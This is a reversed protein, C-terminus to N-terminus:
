STGLLMELIRRTTKAGAVKRLLEKDGTVLVDCKLKEFVALVHTDKKDDLRALYRELDTRPMDEHVVVCKNVYSLLKIIVDPNLHFEEARLTQNVEDLVRRTTVLSCAGIAGLKLLLVENGDFLL